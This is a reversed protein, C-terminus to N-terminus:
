FRLSRESNFYFLTTVSHAAIYGEVQGTEVAALLEASAQYFPERKQLVDLLVNLDILISPKNPM